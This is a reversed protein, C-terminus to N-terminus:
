PTPTSPPGLSRLTLPDVRCRPSRKTAGARHRSRDPWLGAVTHTSIRALRSVPAFRSNSRSTASTLEPRETLVSAVSLSKSIRHVSDISGLQNGEVLRRVSLAM